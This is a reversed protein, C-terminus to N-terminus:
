RKLVAQLSAQQIKSYLGLGHGPVHGQGPSEKRIQEGGLNRRTVSQVSEPRLRRDRQAQVPAPRTFASSDAGDIKGGPRAGPVVLVHHGAAVKQAL